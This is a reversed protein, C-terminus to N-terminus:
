LLLINMVALDSSVLPMSIVTSFSKKAAKLAWHWFIVLYPIHNSSWRSVRVVSSFFKNNISSELNGAM